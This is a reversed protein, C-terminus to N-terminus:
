PTITVRSEATNARYEPRYMDEVLGAPVLFEGPTVARMVYAVSADKGTLSKYGRKLSWAALYRDDRFEEFSPSSRDLEQVQQREGSLRPVELEFGAPLPVELSLETDTEYTIEINHKVLIETGLQIQDLEIDNGTALDVYETTLEVGNNSEADSLFKNVGRATLSLYM